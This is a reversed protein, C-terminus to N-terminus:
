KRFWLRVSSELGIKLAFGGINYTRKESLRNLRGDTTLLSILCGSFFLHVIRLSLVQCTLLRQNPLVDETRLAERIDTIM